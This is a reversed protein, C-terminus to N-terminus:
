TWCFSYYLFLHFNILCNRIKISKCITTYIIRMTVIKINHKNIVYDSLYGTINSCFWMIIFPLSTIVANKAVNMKLVTKFYKPMDVEVLYTIWDHGFQAAILALVSSDKLM